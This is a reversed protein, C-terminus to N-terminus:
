PDLVTVADGVTLTGGAGIKAYVGFDSHGWTRQLLSPIAMDRAGSEPDVNTAECRVTGDVVACRVGGLAIERGLWSRETWPQL